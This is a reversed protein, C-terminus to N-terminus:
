SKEQLFYIYAVVVDVRTMLSSFILIQLDGSKTDQINLNESKFMTKTVSQELEGKSEQLVIMMPSILDARPNQNVSHNSYAAAEDKKVGRTDLSRGSQIGKQFIM